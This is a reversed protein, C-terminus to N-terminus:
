EEEKAKREAEEASEAKVLRNTIIDNIEVDVIFDKMKMRGKM